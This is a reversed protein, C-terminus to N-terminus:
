IVSLSNIDLIYLYNMWSLFYVVQNFTLPPEQPEAPKPDLMALATTQTVAIASTGDRAQSSKCATATALVLPFFHASARFLCKVLSSMCIALPCLFLHEVNGIMLFAFWLWLSVDAWLQSFTLWWFSWLYCIKALIHLFHLGLLSNTAIYIPAAVISFLIFPGWFVLFLVVVYYLLEM